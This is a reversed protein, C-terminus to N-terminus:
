PRKRPASPGRAWKRALHDIATRSATVVFFRREFAGDLRLLFASLFDACFSAAATVIVSCLLPSLPSRALSSPASWRRIALAAKASQYRLMTVAFGANVNQALGIFAMGTRFRVATLAKAAAFCIPLPRKSASAIRRGNRANGFEGGSTCGARAPLIDAHDFRWGRIAAVAKRALDDAMGHPQIVEPREAQPIDPQDQSLPAHDNSVLANTVKHRLETDFNPVSNPQRNRRRRARGPSVHCRSSTKM